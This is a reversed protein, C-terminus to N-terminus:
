FFIIAVVDDEEGYGKFRVKYEYALTDKSLRRSVIKDEEYYDDKEMAGENDETQNSSSKTDNDRKANRPSFGLEKLHAKCESQLRYKRPSDTVPQLDVAGVIDSPPKWKTLIVDNSFFYVDHEDETYLSCRVRVSQKGKKEFSVVDSGDKTSEIVEVRGIDYVPTGNLTVKLAVNCYKIIDHKPNM